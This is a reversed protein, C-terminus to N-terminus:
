VITIKQELYIEQDMSKTAQLQDGVSAISIGFIVIAITWVIAAKDIGSM